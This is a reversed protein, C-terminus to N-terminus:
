DRGAHYKAVQYCISYTRVLNVYKAGFTSLTGLYRILLCFPLRVPCVSLVRFSFFNRESSRMRINELSARQALQLLVVVTCFDCGRTKKGFLLLYVDLSTKLM